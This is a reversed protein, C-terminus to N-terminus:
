VIYHFFLFLGVASVIAIFFFYLGWKVNPSLSWTDKVVVNDGQQEEIQVFVHDPM